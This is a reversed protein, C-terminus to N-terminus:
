TYRSGCGDKGGRRGVALCRACIGLAEKKRVRDDRALGSKPRRPVQQKRRQRANSAPFGNERNARDRLATFAVCTMWRTLRSRRSRRQIPHISAFTVYRVCSGLIVSRRSYLKAFDTRSEAIQIARRSRRVKHRNSRNWRSIRAPTSNSSSNRKSLIVSNWRNYKSIATTKRPPKNTNKKKNSSSIKMTRRKGPLCIM